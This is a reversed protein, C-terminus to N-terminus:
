RVCNTSKRSSCNTEQGLAGCVRDAAFEPLACSFSDLHSVKIKAFKIRDGSSCLKDRVLNEVQLGFKRFHGVGYNQKTQKNKNM